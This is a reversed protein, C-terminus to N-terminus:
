EPPIPQVYARRAAYLQMRERIEAALRVSGREAALAAASRATEAAEGFRGTAAQAAALTDLSAADRM